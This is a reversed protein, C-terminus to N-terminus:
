KITIRALKTQINSSSKIMLSEDDGDIKIIILRGAVTGAGSRRARGAPVVAGGRRLCGGIGSRRAAAERFGGAAVAGCRGGPFMRCSRSQQQSPRKTSNVAGLVANDRKRGTYRPCRLRRRRRRRRQM